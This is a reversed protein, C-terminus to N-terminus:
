VSNLAMQCNLAQSMWLDLLSHNNTHVVIAVYM